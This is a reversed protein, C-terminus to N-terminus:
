HAQHNGQQLNGVIPGLITQTGDPSTILYFATDPPNNSGNGQGGPEGADTFVFSINYGSVGNFRGVGTGTFTDFNSHKPPTQDLITDTCVATTLSELHFQN